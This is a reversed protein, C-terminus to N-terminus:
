STTADSLTELDLSESRAVDRHTFDLDNVVDVVIESVESDLQPQLFAVSLSQGFEHWLHMLSTLDGGQNVLILECVRDVPLGGPTDSMRWGRIRDWAWSPDADEAPILEDSSVIVHVHLRRGPNEWQDASVRIEEVLDIVQGLNGSSGAKDRLKDQLKSFVPFVENPFPFRSFARGIRAGLRRAQASSASDVCRAIREAGLLRSKSVSFARGIDAVWPGGGDRNELFLLLPSKGKRAASKEAPSADIIPAVLCYLKSPQVADCTQSLLVIGQESSPALDVGEGYRGVPSLLILDGQRLDLDGASGLDGERRM